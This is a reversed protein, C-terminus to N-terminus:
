KWAEKIITLSTYYYMILDNKVAHMIRAHTLPYTFIDNDNKYNEEGFVRIM